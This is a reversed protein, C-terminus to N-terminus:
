SDEPLETGQRPTKSYVQPFHVSEVAWALEAFLQSLNGEVKKGFGATKIAESLADDLAIRLSQTWEPTIADVFEQSKANDAKMTAM